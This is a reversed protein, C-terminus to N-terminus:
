RDRLATPLIMSTVRAASKAGRATFWDDAARISKADNMMAGRLRLVAQAFPELECKSLAAAAAAVVAPSTV